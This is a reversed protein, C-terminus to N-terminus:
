WRLRLQDVRVMAGEGWQGGFGLEFLGQHLTTLDLPPQDENGWPYMVNLPVQVLTYRADAPLTIPSTAYILSPTTPKNDILIRMESWYSPVSGDHAVAIEAIMRAFIPGDVFSMDRTPGQVRLAEYCAPPDDCETGDFLLCDTGAYPSTSDLTMEVPIATDGTVVRDAFFVLEQSPEFMTRGSALPSMAVGGHMDHVTLQAFYEKDAVLGYSSTEVVPDPGGTNPLRFVGLEPAQQKTIVRATGARSLVDEANEAVVLEYALFEAEPGVVEWKWRVSNPTTWKASLATPVVVGALLDAAPSDPLVLDGAPGDGADVVLADPADVSFDRLLHLDIVGGGDSMDPTTYRTCAVLSLVVGM